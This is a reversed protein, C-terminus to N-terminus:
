TTTTQKTIESIKEEILKVGANFADGIKDREVFVDYDTQTDKSPWPQGYTDVSVAELVRTEDEWDVRFIEWGEEFDNFSIQYIPM